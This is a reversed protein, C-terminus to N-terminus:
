GAHAREVLKTVAEAIEADTWDEAADGISIEAMAQDPRGTPAFRGFLWRREAQALVQHASDLAAPAARLGARGVGAVRVATEAPREITVGLSELM